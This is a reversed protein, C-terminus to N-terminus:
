IRLACRRGLDQGVCGDRQRGGLIGGFGAVVALRHHVAV